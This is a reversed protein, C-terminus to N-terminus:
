AGKVRDAGKRICKLALFALHDKGRHSPLYKSDNMLARVLSLYCDEETPGEKQQIFFSNRACMQLRGVSSVALPQTNSYLCRIDRSKGAGKEDHFATKGSASNVPSYTNTKTMDVTARSYITRVPPICGNQAYCLNMDDGEQVTFTQCIKM